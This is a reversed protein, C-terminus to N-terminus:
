FMLTNATAYYRDGDYAHHKSGHALAHALGPVWAELMRNTHAMSPWRRTFTGAGLARAADDADIGLKTREHVKAGVAFLKASFLSSGERRAFDAHRDLVALAEAKTAGIGAEQCAALAAAKFDFDWWAHSNAMCAALYLHLARWVHDQESSVSPAALDALPLTHTATM